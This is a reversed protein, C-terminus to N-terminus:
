ILTGIIFAQAISFQFVVLVRRMSFGSLTKSTLKSKLVKIPKFRSLAIAPYLGSLFTVIVIISLLFAILSFGPQIRLSIQLLNNLVPLIISAFVIAIAVSVLTILFTESLFQFILQKKSSGLIKRIGVEKSRNVAQATALNVFNICGIVLL